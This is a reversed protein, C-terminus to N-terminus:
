TNIASLELHKFIHFNYKSAYKSHIPNQCYKQSIMPDIRHEPISICNRYM